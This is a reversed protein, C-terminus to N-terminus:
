KWNKKIDKEENLEEEDIEINNYYKDGYVDFNGKVDEWDFFNIINNNIGFKNDNLKENFYETLDENFKQRIENIKKM